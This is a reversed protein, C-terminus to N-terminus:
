DVVREAWGCEPHGITVSAPPYGTEFTKKFVYSSGAREMEAYGFEKVQLVHPCSDDAKAVLDLEGKNLDYKSKMITPPTVPDETEVLTCTETMDPGIAEVVTCFLQKVAAGYTTLSFTVALSVLVLGMAYEVLGQGAESRRAHPATGTKPRRAQFHEIINDM